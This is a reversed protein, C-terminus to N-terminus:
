AHKERNGPDAFYTDAAWGIAETIAAATAANLANGIGPFWGLLLQSVGRGAMAAAFTLILDAAATKQLSVDHQAAIGIVMGTQLSLLVPADAGPIQALGAGVGGAAVSASHILVHVGKSSM